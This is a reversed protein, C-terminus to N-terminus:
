TTPPVSRSLETRKSRGNSGENYPSRSAYLTVYGNAPSKQQNHANPVLIETSLLMICEARPYRQMSKPPVVRSGVGEGESLGVGIGLLMGVAFGVFGGLTKPSVPWGVLSGVMFGVTKGVSIDTAGEVSGVGLGVGPGVTCIPAGLRAGVLFGVGVGVSCGVVSGVSRGVDGGVAFGTVAEVVDIGVVYGVASGIGRVVASDPHFDHTSSNASVVDLLVFPM